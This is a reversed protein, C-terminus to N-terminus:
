RHRVADVFVYTEARSSLKLFSHAAKQCWGQLAYSTLESRPANCARSSDAHTIPGKNVGTSLPPFDPEHRRSGRLSPLDIPTCRASPRDIRRAKGIPPARGLPSPVWEVSGYFDRAFEARSPETELAVTVFPAESRHRFPPVLCPGIPEEGPELCRLANDFTRRSISEASRLASRLGVIGGALVCDGLHALDEAFAVSHNAPGAAVLLAGGFTIRTVVAPCEDADNAREPADDEATFAFLLANGSTVLSTGSCGSAISREEADEVSALIFFIELSYKTASTM